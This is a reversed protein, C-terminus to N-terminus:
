KNKLNFWKNFICKGWNETQEQEISYFCAFEIMQEETYLNVVQKEKYLGIDKLDLNFYESCLVQYVRKVKIIIEGETDIIFESICVPYMVSGEFEIRDGLNFMVGDSVRRITKIIHTNTNFSERVIEYDKVEKFWDTMKDFDELKIKFATSSLTSIWASGYEEWGADIEFHPTKIDKLLKYKKM